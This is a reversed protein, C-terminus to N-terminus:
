NVRHAFREYEQVMIETYKKAVVVYDYNKLVWKRGRTGMERREEDPIKLLWTLKELFDISSQQKFVIASGVASRGDNIENSEMLVPVASAQVDFFSLSCQRPFIFLDAAQYFYHLNYFPQTPFRLVRVSARELTEEVRKGYEGSSSGIIVFAVDECGTPPTFKAICEALFCGGKYEDLKGAYMVVKTKSNLSNEVRFASYADYSPRFRSADSGFSLLHTDKLPIGLCKEVYDTDVTRIIPISRLRIIPAVLVKYVLRFVHKFRNVSAMELMHCDLVLPQRRWLSRIIFQIGILTDEGHVFVVDPSLKRLERFINPYYVVRGSVCGLVDLRHIKVKTLREYEADKLAIDSTDFFLVLYEPASALSSTIIHVEHGQDVQLKALNNLQYGATPM